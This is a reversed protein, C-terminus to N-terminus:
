RGDRGVSARHQLYALAIANAIAPTSDLANYSYSELRGQFERVAGTRKLAAIFHAHRRNPRWRSRTPEFLLVPRGTAVAEGVMNVSDATVVVGDSGALLALYPNEGQGDWIFGGNQAILDLVALRLPEPTRRSPTAMLSVGAQALRGILGTLDTIDSSTFRHHRSDGGLLLAVRPRDLRAIADPLGAAAAALREAGVRHPPTLSVIVNDGRLRDHEPVWILDAAGCGTRPDKLFVTFTQRRSAHKIARLAAVARRGSAVVLDPFPPATPSGARDPAERPDIPGWPMAFVWPARPAVRKIQPCLGLAEVVALCQGEDGAKGDSLVWCTTDPPLRPQQM